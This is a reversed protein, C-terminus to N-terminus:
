GVVFQKLQPSDRLMLYCTLQALSNAIALPLSYPKSAFLGRVRGFHISPFFNALDVSFVFKRGVHPSANSKISRGTAFGHVPARGGYVELLIEALRRQVTKLPGTPACIVRKGGAKKALSFTKYPKAHCFYRLAKPTLSLLNALEDFTSLALFQKKIASDNSM